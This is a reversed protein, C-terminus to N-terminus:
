EYSPTSFDMKGWEPKIINLGSSYILLWEPLFGEGPHRLVAWGYNVNVFDGKCGVIISNFEM